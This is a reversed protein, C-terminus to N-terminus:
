FICVQFVIREREFEEMSNVEKIINKLSDDVTNMWSTMENFKQRYFDWQAPIQQLTKRMEEVREAIMEWQQEAQKFATKLPNDMPEYQSYTTTIRQMNELCKEVKLVTGKNKFYDQNRKMIADVNENKNFAQQELHIEKDIEKVYNNFTTEDFRFELRMLHLPALLLTDKWRAQLHEVSTIIQKQEAPPLCKILDQATQVLDNMWKENINEFFLKQSDVSHQAETHRDSLLVDAQNLWDTVIRESEKLNDWCRVAEQLKNEWQQANQTVYAFRENLQNMKQVSESTDISKDSAVSKLLSQFVKNKSELMSKYYLTRTFFNRHKNLQDYIQDRGGTLSLSQLVNEADDLWQHIEKQGQELSEQQILLQHFLHQKLPIQARVRVLAEKQQKLTNMMKEVEERSLDQILTQIIKSTNKFLDEIDDIGTALDQLENGYAKIQDITGMPQKNLINEANNLWIKLKEVGSRYEQRNRLIDGAHMYQKTNSFLAEFRSSMNTYNNKLETAISDQCTAILFNAIDGLLQHKDRWVSIDQFFELRDDETGRQKEEARSLWGDFEDSMSNWRKWNAVVEELMSQCCRLEMSVSKWKDEIDRMFKDIEYHDNATIKGDRKYEEVVQQMDVFAKSFEQFIKNRSVFNKYQELLQQAHDERGYKVTWLKLKNEILNLFAILCCKHELFKLKIRRQAANPEIDYLRQELSNVYEFPIQNIFPSRKAREFLERIEPLAAFYQKHEELKKSIISATEENMAKPIDDTYILKEGESLWKGVVGFDGPLSSDLLWLWYRMQMQLKHWLKNIEEWAAPAITAMSSQSEVINKLKNYLTSKSDIETKAILYDNFERSFSNTHIMNDYLTTKEQLWQTFDKYEEQLASM